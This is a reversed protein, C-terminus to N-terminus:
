GCNLIKLYLVIIVLVFIGSRPSITNREGVQDAMESISDAAERVKAWAGVTPLHETKGAFLM